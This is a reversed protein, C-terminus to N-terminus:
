MRKRGYVDALYGFLLQGVFNGVPTAVNLGLGQSSNLKGRQSGEYFVYGIMQSAISVTFM